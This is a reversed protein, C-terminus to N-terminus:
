PMVVHKAAPSLPARPKLGSTIVGGRAPVKTGSTIVGGMALCVRRTIGARTLTLTLALALTLALTLALALARGLGLGLGLGLGVGVELGVWSCSISCRSRYSRGGETKM